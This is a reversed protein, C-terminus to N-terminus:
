PGFSPWKGAPFMTWSDALTVKSGAIKERNIVTTENPPWGMAFYRWEGIDLYPKPPKKGWRMPVGNDYIFQVTATFSLAGKWTDRVVYFHPVFAMTKAFKWPHAEFDAIVQELSAAM